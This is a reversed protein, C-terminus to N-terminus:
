INQANIIFNNSNYLNKSLKRNDDLGLDKKLMFVQKFAPIVASSMEKHLLKLNAKFNYKPSSQKNIKDITDFIPYM